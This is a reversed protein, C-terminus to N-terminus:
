TRRLSSRSVGRRKATNKISGGDFSMGKLMASGRKFPGGAINSEPKM